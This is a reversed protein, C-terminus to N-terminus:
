PPHAGAPSRATGVEVRTCGGAEETATIRVPLFREVIKANTIAHSSWSVTRFEGSGALAFPVLLQDALHEGVPADKRLYSRIEDVAAMAVREASKGREGFATALESVHEHEIEVQLVNGTGVAGLSPAITCEHAGFALEDRVVRLERHAITEPLNVLVARAIRRQLRGRALLSQPRLASTPEIAVEFSGGGAPHLGPRHLRVTIGVGMARLVRFFVHELFEFPPAMPNHTGGVLTLFAPEKALLLAPLVTQLVLTTSGAGVIEFRHAGGRVTRPVFTLEQSGLEAGSTTADGIARAALVATLHQRMLGPKSRKARNRTIRFPEGTVLALGLATRLVQGGGEGESGDLHLM